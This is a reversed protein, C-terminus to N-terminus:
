KNLLKDIRKFYDARVIEDELNLAGYVYRGKWAVPVKGHYPDNIIFAGEKLGDSKEKALELYNKMMDECDQNDTGEIIFLQFSDGRVLYDATFANHLFDMGIFNSAVFKESNPIKGQEPFCSLITPMLGTGDLKEAIRYAFISLV